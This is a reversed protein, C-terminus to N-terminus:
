PELTLTLTVRVRARDRVLSPLLRTVQVVLEVVSQALATRRTRTRALALITLTLHPHPHPRPTFGLGVGLCTRRATRSQQLQPTAEEVVKQGAEVLQGVGLVDHLSVLGIDM